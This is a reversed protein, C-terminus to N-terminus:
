LLQTPLGGQHPARCPSPGQEPLVGPAHDVDQDVVTSRLLLWCLLSRVCVGHCGHLLFEPYLSEVAIPQMAFWAAQAQM